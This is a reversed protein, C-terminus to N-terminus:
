ASTAPGRRPRTRHLATLISQSQDSSSAIERYRERGMESLSRRLAPESAVRKMQRALSVDDGPVFYLAADGSTERAGPIDSAILPTGVSIAEILVHSLNEFRSPAICVDSAAMEELVRAHNLYGELRVVNGVGLRDIEAQLFAAYSKDSPRGFVRVSLDEIDVHPVARIVTEISKFRNLDAIVVFARGQGEHRQSSAPPRAPVAPPLVISKGAVLNLGVFSAAHSALLLVLDARRISARTLWRLTELALRTRGQYAMREEAFPLLNTIMVVRAPAKGGFWAPLLNYAGFMVDPRWRRLRWPLVLREWAIRLANPLGSPPSIVTARPALSRVEAALEPRVVFLYEDIPSLRPFVNAMKLLRNYGAGAARRAGVAHVVIRIGQEGDVPQAM